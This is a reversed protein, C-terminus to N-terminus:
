YQFGFVPSLFPLTLATKRCALLDGVEGSNDDGNFHELYRVHGMNFFTSSLHYNKKYIKLKKLSAIILMLKNDGMLTRLNDYFDNNFESENKLLNEFDDLCLVPLVGLQQWKKIALNFGEKNWDATQMSNYLESNENVHNNTYLKESVHQYFEQTKALNGCSLYIVVYKDSKGVLHEWFQSFRYLLCSKGLRKDGVINISTPQVGEMLGVIYKFDDERGIFPGNSEIKSAAVFPNVERNM